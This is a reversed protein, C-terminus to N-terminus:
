VSGSLVEVKKKAAYTELKEISVRVAEIKQLLTLEPDPFWRENSIEMESNTIRAKVYCRVSAATLDGRRITIGCDKGSDFHVRVDKLSEPISLGIKRIAEDSLYVFDLNTANM